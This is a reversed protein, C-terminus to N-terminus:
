PLVTLTALAALLSPVTVITGVRVFQRLPIKVGMRELVALWLLGALSGIPLLRPGLDGGVLAALFEKTEPTPLADITVMNILAMSHNNILASGLASVTGITVVDGHGYVWELWSDAGARHLGIALTFVGFLFILIEWSVGAGILRRPGVVGHSACVLAAACGGVAAVLWVAGDLYAVLPYACLVLVVLALGHVEAPRWGAQIDVLGALDGVVPGARALEARFLAWLVLITVASSALAVPLMRAAYANFNLGAFDAVILNMPNSTALPAVGAAMFVAFAFPVILSPQGPYLRRISLVVLPTLVLIASDNNLVASTVSSLAFVLVFLRAASGQAWPLMTLELRKIVGLHGAATAIVMISAIAVLPRWMDHAAGALDAPTVNGALMMVLVGATAALAPGIVLRRGLRPQSLSLWVTVGLASVATVEQV